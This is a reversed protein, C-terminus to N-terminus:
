SLLRTWVDDVDKKLSAHSTREHLEPFCAATQLISPMLGFSCVLSVRVTNVQLNKTFHPENQKM